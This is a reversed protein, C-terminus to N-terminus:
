REFSMRRTSLCAAGPLQALLVVQDNAFIWQTGGPFCGVLKFQFATTPDFTSAPFPTPAPTVVAVVATSPPPVVTAVSRPAAVYFWSAVAAVALFASVVGPLASRRHGAPAGELDRIM